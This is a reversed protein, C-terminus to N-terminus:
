DSEPNPIVVQEVSWKIMHGARRKCKGAIAPTSGFMHCAQLPSTLPVTEACAWTESEYSM